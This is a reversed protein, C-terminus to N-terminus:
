KIREEKAIYISWYGRRKVTRTAYGMKNLEKEITPDTTFIKSGILWDVPIARITQKEQMQEYMRTEQNM